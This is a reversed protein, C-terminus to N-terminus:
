GKKMSNVDINPVIDDSSSYYDKYEKNYSSYYNYGYQEYYYYYAHNGYTIKNIIVGLLKTNSAKIKEIVYNTAKKKSKNHNVIMIAADMKGLLIRSDSLGLMPPADFVLLDYHKELEEIMDNFSSSELLSTPNSTRIGAPLVDLNPLPTKVIADQWTTKKTLIGNIGGKKNDIGFMLELRPRRLDTNVLLIKKKREAGVAGFYTTAFTKGEDPNSSLIIIKKVDKLQDALEAHMTRFGEVVLNNHKDPKLTGNEKFFKKKIFPIAAVVKEGMENEIDVIKKIRNDTIWLLLALAFGLGVGVVAGILINQAHRPKFPKQPLTAKESIHINNSETKGQIATENMRAIINNYLSEFQQANRKLVNYETSERNLKLADQTKKNLETRLNREQALAHDYRAKVKSAAEECANDYQIRVQEYEKVAQKMAPYGDKYREKLVSIELEKEKLLQYLRAVDPESIIQLIDESDIDKDIMANMENLTTETSIREAEAETLKHSIDKMKLITIDQQQELSVQGTRERYSALKEEADFLKAKYVEAQSELWRVNETSDTMKRDLQNYVFTEAVINAITVAMEPDKSIATIDVLRTGPYPKVKISGMVFGTYNINKDFKDPHKEKLKKSTKIAIDRGQLNKVMTNYYEDTGDAIPGVEAQTQMVKQTRPEIQVQSTAKYLPIQQFSWVGAVVISIILITIIMWIRELAIFLCDQLDLQSDDQQYKNQTNQPEVDNTAQKM